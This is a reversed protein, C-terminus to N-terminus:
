KDKLKSKAVSISHDLENALQRLNEPTLTTGILNFTASNCESMLTLEQELLVVGPDGNTVFHTTLTLAEGGSSSPDFNFVHLNLNKM